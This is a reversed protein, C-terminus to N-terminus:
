GSVINGLGIEGHSERRVEGESILIYVVSVCMFTGGAHSQMECRKGDDAWRWDSFLGAM